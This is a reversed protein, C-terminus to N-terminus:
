AIAHLFESMVRSTALAQELPTLHGAGPIVTLQADAVAGALARADGPPTLADDSGVLVLTPVNISRATKTSDPRDRLAEIAGALGKPGNGLIMRKVHEVVEPQAEVTVPSLLKPLMRDAIAAAGQTHALQIMEDRAQKGAPTDAEMRTDALILARIRDPVRRWLEFAVYGGMSLGCVVTRRVGLHDLLEILDLAYRAMSYEGDPAASGGFGRLDPAIRKWGSLTAIQHRWMTRNLPFGHIFLIPDGEGRLDVALELGGGEAPLKVPGSSVLSPRPELFRLVEGPIEVAKGKMDITVFVLDAEAVIGDDKARRAVHRMTFSSRGRNTLTTEVKLVDGPMAPARYEVTARRVAPWSGNRQFLDIGPGRALMEWRAREFVELFAAENLHGYADCEYPYVRVDIVPFQSM